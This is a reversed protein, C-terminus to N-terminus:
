QDRAAFKPARKCFYVLRLAPCNTKSPDRWRASAGAYCHRHVTRQMTELTNILRRSDSLRKMIKCFQSAASKKIDAIGSVGAAYTNGPGRGRKRALDNV